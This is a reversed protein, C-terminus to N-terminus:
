GAFWWLAAAPIVISGTICFFWDLGTFRGVESDGLAELEGIRQELAEILREREAQEASAHLDTRPQDSM